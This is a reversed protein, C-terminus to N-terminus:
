LGFPKAVNIRGKGYYPDTGPAGLDEAFTRIAEAVADPNKGYKEVMLAALGTVHPAAMSTGASGAPYGGNCYSDTGAVVSSGAVRVTLRPCAAWVYGGTNGGPAAVDIASRGYATYHAPADPNLFPGYFISGGSAFGSPGTASVCIVNPASCYTVYLSPYRQVTTEGTTPDTIPVLDRDLDAATNGAAVVVTLKKAKVYNFVRNIAAEYGRAESRLFVGGLSLNVVDLGNDAAHVLAAFVAGSPCGRPTLGAIDSRCVKLGVLTVRSTVGAAVVGNSSVTAGVHTGHGHLDYVHHTGPLYADIIADESPLFSRSLALDVRGSLDYHTYDLGTDVIGVKVAPSGLKGAGWARDAGIQRMNWQLAYWLARAPEAPSQPQELQQLQAVDLTATAVPEVRTLIREAEVHRVAADARLEAAAAPSLGSVYAVGIPGLADEVKGGLAAVRQAFDVPVSPQDFVVLQRHAGEASAVAAAPAGRPAGPATPPEDTCAALGATAALVLSSVRAHHLFTRSM